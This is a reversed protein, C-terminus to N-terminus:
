TSGFPYKLAVRYLEVIIKMKHCAQTLPATQIPLLLSLQPALDTQSQLPGKDVDIAHMWGRKRDADRKEKHSQKERM